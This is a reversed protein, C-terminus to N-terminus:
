SASAPLARRRRRLVIYSNIRWALHVTSYAVLAGVSALILMGAILPSAIDGANQMWDDFTAWAQTSADAPVGLVSTGVTYALVLIPVFTLPNSILTCLVAVPLNARMFIAALAALPIQAIPTAVGFFLGIAAGSAITHRNAKWLWPRNLIPGMWRLAANARVAEASPLYKRFM